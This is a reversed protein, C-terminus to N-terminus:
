NTLYLWVKKFKGTELVEVVYYYSGAPLLEGTKDYTGAWDNQYNVKKFVIQGYRNYVRVISTPYQELNIIKWTSESGVVGPTLLPSVFIQNDDPDTCSPDGDNDRDVPSDFANLPDTNCIAEAEDSWGDGDDDTDYCNSVGDSDTDIPYSSADLPDSGCNTEEEDAWGDGDDDTDICNAIKDGDTDVPVSSPDLPDTGCTKEVQDDWGDNDDDTDICNAEGDKDTDVPVSNLDRADTGCSVEVEDSWGDNDDDLDCLDGAGDGDTDRQDPNAVTPCNDISDGIGDNDNDTDGVFFVTSTYGQTYLRTSEQIATITCSGVGNIVIKGDVVQAVSPDSSTYIIEGPRNSTVPPFTFSDDTFIKDPLDLNSLVTIGPLVNIIVRRTAAMNYETNGPQEVDVIKEGIDSISLTNGSLSVGSGSIFQYNVALGSDSSADISYTLGESYYLTLPGPDSVTINQNVKVVDMVFVTSAPNYNPHDALNTSFTLTVLGTANISVLEYGSASVKRASGPERLNAASGDSINTYVPAGSTSSARISIVSFDKLPKIGPLDSVLISQNAKDILLTTTVTTSDYNGDSALHATLIVSGSGVSNITVEGTVPDVSAISADSSSYTQRKYM